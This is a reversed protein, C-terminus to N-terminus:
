HGYVKGAIERNKFYEYFSVNMLLLIMSYAMDEVPISGIRLGTNEANNYLIVPISTLMGNIVFFPILHVLYAVYFRGTLKNKFYLQHVMLSIAAGSMSTVTYWKSYNIIAILIFSGMLVYSIAESYKQLYDERIYYNLAEYIFMCSFPVTFFFMWEELPLGAIFIGVVYDPNFSWIGMDTFCIDWAIFLCATFAMGPFLHKWKTYYSIKGEFSRLLPFFITALHLFLYTYQKM